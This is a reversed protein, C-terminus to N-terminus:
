PEIPPLSKLQEILDESAGPVNVFDAINEAFQENIRNIKVRYKSMTEAQARDDIARMKPLLERMDDVILLVRPAVAQAESESRVGALLEGIEQVKALYAEMIRDSATTPTPNERDEACGALLSALLVITLV